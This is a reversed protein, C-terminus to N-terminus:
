QKIRPDDSGNSQQGRHENNSVRFAEVAKVLICKLERQLKPVAHSGGFDRAEHFVTRGDILIEIDYGHQVLHATLQVSPTRYIANMISM